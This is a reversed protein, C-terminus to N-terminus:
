HPKANIYHGFLSGHLNVILKQLVKSNNLKKLYLAMSIEINSVSVLALLMFIKVM